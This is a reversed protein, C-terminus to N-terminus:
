VPIVNVHNQHAYTIIQKDGTILVANRNRATAVLFCDAPDKYFNGPLRTSEVAIEADLPIVTVQSSAIANEIWISFDTIPQIRRKKELVGLEWVSIASVYLKGERSAANIVPLAKSRSIMEHQSILWLWVHTDLLYLESSIYEPPAIDSLKRRRPRGM